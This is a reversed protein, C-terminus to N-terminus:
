IAAAEEARAEAANLIAIAESLREEATTLADLRNVVKAGTPSYIQGASLNEIIEATEDIYDLLRHHEAQLRDRMAAMKDRKM